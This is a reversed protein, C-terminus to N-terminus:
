VAEMLGCAVESHEVNINAAADLELLKKRKIKMLSDLRGCALSLGKDKGEPRSRITEIAKQASHIKRNYYNKIQERQVLSKSTMEQQYDEILIGCKDTLHNTLAQLLSSYDSEVRHYSNYGQSLAENMVLESTEGDIIDKGSLSLLAYLLHERRYLGALTLRQVLYFYHGKPISNGAYQFKSVEYLVAPSTRLESTIWRIIPHMHTLLQLSRHQRRRVKLVEPYLTFVFGTKSLLAPPVRLYNQNCFSELESMAEHTLIIRGCNNAPHDWELRCGQFSRSFFDDIYIRLEEPRVYRGLRKSNDVQEALFDRYAVLSGEASELEQNMSRTTEIARNADAIRRIEQDPSLQDALLARTLKAVEDGIVDELDGITHRFIGIKEYLHEYIRADITNPVYFNVINITVAQQGIRDIRGIRQEVRMPNWPLDYNVVTRCFQLDIGEAAIESCLLVQVSQSTEFDELIQRRENTDATNGTLQVCEFGDAMLRRALYSITDKFFAFVIIKEGELNNILEDRFVTYKSDMSEYDFKLLEVLSHDAPDSIDEDIDEEDVEPPDGYAEEIERIEAADGWRGHRLLDAIVPLCSSLRLAPGMLHFMTADAGYYAARRRIYTILASYLALEHKNLNVTLKRSTRQVRGDVDIDSKRTRNIFGSFVNLQDLKQSLAIGYRPTSEFDSVMQKVRAFLASSSFLDSQEMAEIYQNMLATDPNPMRLLNLLAILPRNQECALNFTAEDGFYDPDILQMLAYLDRSKNHIPTASLSVVAGSEPSLLRGIMHRATETNRMVHAEDFVVLDAFSFGGDRDAIRKLIKGRLSLESEEISSSDAANLALARLLRKDKRNPLLSNYSCVAHFALGNGLRDFEKLLDAIGDAKCERVDHLQFRERLEAVWKGCLMPPCVVLLRRAMFRARCETWILGAEITKGLGVEDAILIRNTPSDIFRLVPKFQHPYYDIEAAEMSYFVDTLTGQLKEFTIRRRLDEITGYKCKRVLTHQDKGESEDQVEVAEIDHKQRHGGWDVEVMVVPGMKVTNGTLVGHSGPKAGLYVMKGQIVDEIQMM